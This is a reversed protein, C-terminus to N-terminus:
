ACLTQSELLRILKFLLFFLHVFVRWKLGKCINERDSLILYNLIKM